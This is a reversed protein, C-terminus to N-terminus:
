LFIMTIPKTDVQFQFGNELRENIILKYDYIPEIFGHNANGELTGIIFSSHKAKYKVSFTPAVTTYDPRGFEKQLYIGGKIILRPSIQYQIEPIIEIVM